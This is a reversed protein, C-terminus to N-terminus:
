EGVLVCTSTKFVSYFNLNFYAGVHKPAPVGGEPLASGTSAL